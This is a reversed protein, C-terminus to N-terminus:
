TRRYDPGIVIMHPALLMAHLNILCILALAHLPAKSCSSDPSLSNGHASHGGALSPTIVNAVPWAARSPHQWVKDHQHHSGSATMPLRTLSQLMERHVRCATIFKGLMSATNAVQADRQEQSLQLAAQM